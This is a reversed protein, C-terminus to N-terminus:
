KTICKLQVFVFIEMLCKWSFCINGHFVFINMFTECSVCINGHFCLYNWSVNGHFLVRETLLLMIHNSALIGLRSFGLNYKMTHFGFFNLRVSSHLPYKIWRETLTWKGAAVIWIETIGQSATWIFQWYWGSWQQCPQNQKLAKGIIFVFDKKCTGHFYM